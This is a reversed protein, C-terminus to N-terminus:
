RKRLFAPVVGAAKRTSAAQRAGRSRNRATIADRQRAVALSVEPPLVMRQAGEADVYEIFVFDGLDRQRVTQVIYTQARGLLPTTLRITSPKVRTADPLGELSGLLRDFPDPMESM